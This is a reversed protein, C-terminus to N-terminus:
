AFEERREAGSGAYPTTGAADQKLDAVYLVTTGDTDYVTMTGASPDTIVKNHALAYMFAGQASEWVASALSAPSLETQTTITAGLEGTAYSTLTLTGVGAASGTMHGTGTMTATDVTGVGALSAAAALIAILNSTDIAGSGALAAAASVILQGTVTLDSTGTISAEGNMGGALNPADTGGTGTLLGYSAMGGGVPALWWSVPPTQGNPFSSKAVQGGPVVHEGQYFRPLCSAKLVAMPNTFGGWSAYTNRNLISYNGLLM